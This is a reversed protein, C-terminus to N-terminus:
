TQDDRALVLKDMADAADRRLAPVVSAYVDATISIGAHGLLSSIVPLPVGESLLATATSHRLAHFPIPPLEARRLLSHFQRTVNWGRLPRGLPDTFVLGLQDQWDPGAAARLREQLERQASLADLAAVGLPIVRRSRATKPEAVTLFLEARLRRRVLCGGVQGPLPSDGNGAVSIGAEIDDRDDHVASGECRVAWDDDALPSDQIWVRQLSLDIGATAAYM